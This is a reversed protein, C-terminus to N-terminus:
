SPGSVGNVANRVIEWIFKRGGSSKIQRERKLAISRSECEESYVLIWDDTKATFKSYGKNHDTLRKKLDSSQGIYIANLNHSYLAYVHFSMIQPASRSRVASRKFAM